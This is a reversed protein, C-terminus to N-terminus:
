RSSRGGCATADLVGNETMQEELKSCDALAPTEDRIQTILHWQIVTFPMTLPGIQPIKPGSCFRPLVLAYGLKSTTLAEVM